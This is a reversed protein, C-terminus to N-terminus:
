LITRNVTCWLEAITLKGCSQLLQWHADLPGVVDVVLVFHLKSSNKDRSKGGCGWGRRGSCDNTLLDVYEVYSWHITPKSEEEGGLKYSQNETSLHQTNSVHLWLM